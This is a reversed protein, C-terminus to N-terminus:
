KWRSSDSLHVRMSQADRDFGRKIAPDEACNMYQLALPPPPPPPGLINLEGLRIFFM